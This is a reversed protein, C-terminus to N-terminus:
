VGEKIILEKTLAAICKDMLQVPMADLTGCKARAIWRPIDKEKGCLDILKKLEDIKEKPATIQLTPMQPSPAAVVEGAVEKERISADDDTQAIGLIAALAYRRAYTIVSGSAQATSMSAKGSKGVPNDVRMYLTSSIYQGSSHMLVTEVGVIELSSPDSSCLQSVALDYKSLLPRVLDLITSLETYKYGYGSKDKHVNQIENQLKSLAAALHSIEESRNM